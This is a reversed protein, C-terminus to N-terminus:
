VLKRKVAQIAEDFGTQLMVDLAAPSSHPNEIRDLREIILSLIQDADDLSKLPFVGDLNIGKIPPVIPKSGAAIVLKDYALNKTDLSVKKNEPDIAFVKRGFITKIGERSYDKNIRLFLNQRELEGAIYNPLACASYEPYTEESVITINAQSDLYRITSSVTNGAVGNGIIIVKM